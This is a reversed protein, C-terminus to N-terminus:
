ESDPTTNVKLMSEITVNQGRFLNTLNELSKAVSALVELAPKDWHIATFNCDSVVTSARRPISKTKTVLKKKIIEKKIKKM